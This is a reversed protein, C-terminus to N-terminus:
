WRATPLGRTQILTELQDLLAETAPEEFDWAQACLTRVYRQWAPPGCRGELPFDDTAPTLSSMEKFV